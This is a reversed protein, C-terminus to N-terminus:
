RILLRFEEIIQVNNKAKKRFQAYTGGVKEKPISGELIITNILITKLKKVKKRGYKILKSFYNWWM